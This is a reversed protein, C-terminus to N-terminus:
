VFRRQREADQGGGRQEVYQAFGRGQAAFRIREAGAAVQRIAALREGVGDYIVQADALAFVFPRRECGGIVVDGEDEEHEAVVDRVGVHGHVTVGALIVEETEVQVGFRFLEPFFIDNTRVFDVPEVLAEAVVRLAKWQKLIIRRM